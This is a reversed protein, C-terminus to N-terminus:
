LPCVLSTINLPFVPVTGLEPEPKSAHQPENGYLDDEMKEFNEYPINFSFRELWKLWKNKSLNTEYSCTECEDAFLM